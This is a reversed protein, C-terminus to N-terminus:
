RIFVREGLQQALHRQINSMRLYNLLIEDNKAPDSAIEPMALMKQYNRMEEDVVLFKYDLMLRITYEPALEAETPMIIAKSLQYRESLMNVAMRSIELDPSALLYKSVSFGPQSLRPILDELVAAYLPTRLKLNDDKLNDYVYQAIPINVDNGKDDTGYILIEGHRVVLTMIRNELEHFKDPQQIFQNSTQVNSASPQQTAPRAAPIDAFDPPLDQMQQEFAAQMMDIEEQNPADHSPAASPPTAHHTSTVAQQGTPQDPSVEQAQGTSALNDQQMQRLAQQRAFERQKQLERFAEARSTSVQRVLMEEDVHMMEACEHVYAARIVEDPIVAISTVISKTLEARKLPDRGATELLLNTKFIIFNTQHEEVYARFESANHKRAFSDPDDGNPLLLIQVNMGDALLMDTGRLAAKIGAADGDYVLTINSTFRHLLRIQADNLATGSNAVVNEIGSQHMSLVDTYGEVMFVRDEAVIQKKAQFLGYLEHSKSYIPSEPSNIYKQAVGKTRSDLVRGGFAVIKGSVNFWPFIVRGRYRDNIQSQGSSAAKDRKYCLGVKLIFEERYGKRKAESALADWKDLAFGLRFKSIIDDRFGRSRFYALGVARGDTTNLLTEQFYKSAWENVAFLSERENISQRQEPTLEREEVEIGYKKGLFKIAEIYSLQEMKMIFHVSNGGEGCAFCKCIGKAPSVHFSPTKDQHFPCLGKYNAGARKLTVYESVVDVINAADIVRDITTQDLM